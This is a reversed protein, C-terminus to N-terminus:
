QQLPASIVIAFVIETSKSYIKQLLNLQIGLKDVFYSLIGDM